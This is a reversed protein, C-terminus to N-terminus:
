EPRLGRVRFHVRQLTENVGKVDKERAYQRLLQADRALQESDNTMSSKRAAPIDIAKPLFVALKELGTGAAEVNVWDDIYFSETASTAHLRARQVLDRYALPQGDIPPPPLKEAATQCGLATFLILGVVRIRRM